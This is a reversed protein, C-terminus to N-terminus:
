ISASRYSGGAPFTTGRWSILASLITARSEATFSDSVRTNRRATLSKWRRHSEVRRRQSLHSFGVDFQHAQDCFATSLKSCMELVVWCGAERKPIAPIGGVPSCRRGRSLDSGDGVPARVRMWIHAARRADLPPGPDSKRDARSLTDNRSVAGKQIEFGFSGLNRTPIGFKRSM